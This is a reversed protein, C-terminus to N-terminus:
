FYCSNNSTEFAGRIKVSYALEPGRSNEKTGIFLFGKDRIDNKFFCIPTQDSRYNNFSLSSFVLSITSSLCEISIFGLNGEGVTSADRSSPLFNIVSVKSDYLSKEFVKIESDEPNMGSYKPITANRPIWVSSNPGFPIVKTINGGTKKM